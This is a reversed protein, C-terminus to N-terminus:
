TSYKVFMSITVTTGNRGWWYKGGPPIPVTALLSQGVAGSTSTLTFVVANVTIYAEEGSGTFGFQWSTLEAYANSNEQTVSLTPTFAASPATCRVYGSMVTNVDARLVSITQSLRSLDASLPAVSASLATALAGIASISLSFKQLLPGVTEALGVCYNLETHTASVAGSIAPFSAKVAAKILRLHDDAATRDSGGEPYSANLGNIYVATELTM